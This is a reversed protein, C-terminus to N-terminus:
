AAQAPAASPEPATKAADIWAAIAEPKPGAAGRLLRQGADSACYASVMQALADADSGALAAASRVQCATLIQAATANLGPAGIMLRAQDQWDGITRPTIHSAKLSAAMSAADGALLDGVTKVGIKYLRAATKPGISPGDVVDDEPKLARPARQPPEPKARAEAKPAAKPKPEVKLEVKPTPAHKLGIERPWQCDLTSLPVKLVETAYLKRVVRDDEPLTARVKGTRRFEEYMAGVLKREGTDEIVGMVKEIPVKLGAFLTDLTLNV